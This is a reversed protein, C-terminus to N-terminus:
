QGLAVSDGVRVEGPELVEGYIGFALPETTDLERRYEGLLELTPLDVNGSEPDRSTVLCRGVHGRPGILASGVRVRRRVWRDEEHARVGDIEILMRFRRADISDQDAVEALRSLSARSIVSVAGQRGRDVGVGPAVLRLQRGTFESLAESWPGLLPRAERQGSFFRIQFPAGYEVVGRAEGGDPFALSLQGAEPQYDAVVTQLEGLQKGNLM